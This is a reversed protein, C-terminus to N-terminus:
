GFTYNLTAVRHTLMGTDASFIPRNNISRLAIGMMSQTVVHVTTVPEIFFIVTFIDVASQSEFTSSGYNICAHQIHVVDVM